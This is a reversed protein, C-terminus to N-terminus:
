RKTKPPKAVLGDGAIEFTIGTARSLCVLAGRLTTKKPYLLDKKEEQALDGSLASADISVKGAKSLVELAKKPDYPSWDFECVEGLKRSLEMRGELKKAALGCWDVNEFNKAGKATTVVVIGNWVLHILGQKGLEQKLIEDLSASAAVSVFISDAKVEVPDLFFPLEEGSFEEVFRVLEQLPVHDFSMSVTQALREKLAKDPDNGKDQALVCSAFLIPLM